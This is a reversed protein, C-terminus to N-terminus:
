NERWVPRVTLGDTRTWGKEIRYFVDSFALETSFATAMYTGYAIGAYITSQQYFSTGSYFGAAPLFISNSTYGEKNSTIRYGYVNNVTTWEWSCETMLEQWEAETPTRWSQGYAMYAADDELDLETKNDQENYKSFGENTYYKYNAYSYDDKSQTEAWAFHSGYAEPSAAGVNRDAWKVSLGLDVLGPATIPLEGYVPRVTQGLSVEAGNINFGGSSYIDMDMYGRSYWESGAYGSWISAHGGVFLMSAGSRVGAYPIFISNGNPGTAISGRVGEVYQDHQWSCKDRLEELEAVTPLRWLDKWHVHAIDYETGSISTQNVYYYDEDNSSTLEGTPDGMGYLGGYEHPASAGLNWSSWKVSLGLDVIEAVTEFSAEGRYHITAVGEDYRMREITQGVLFWIDTLSNMSECYLRTLGSNYSVDLVTLQNSGCWLDALATNHSVDLSTLQNDM